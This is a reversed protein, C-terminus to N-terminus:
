TTSCLLAQPLKRNTLGNTVTIEIRSSRLPDAQGGLNGEHVAFLLDFDNAADIMSSVTPPRLLRDREDGQETFLQHERSHMSELLPVAARM